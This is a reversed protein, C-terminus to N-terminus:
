PASAANEETEFEADSFWRIDTIQPSSSLVAHIVQPAEPVIGRNRGGLLSKILGTRREITCIWDGNHQLDDRPTAEAPPSGWPSNGNGSDIEDSPRYGIILQYEIRDVRFTIYWGFDEQGPEAETEVGRTRLERIFWRAVDDGFCCDNIFCEKPESTNFATSKFM